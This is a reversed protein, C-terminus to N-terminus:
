RSVVIIAAPFFRARRVALSLTADKERQAIILPNHRAILKGEHEVFSSAKSM